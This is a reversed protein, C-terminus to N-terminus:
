REDKAADLHKIIVAGAIIANWQPDTFPEGRISEFSTRISEPKCGEALAKAATEAM